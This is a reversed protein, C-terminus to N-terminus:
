GGEDRMRAQQPREARGRRRRERLWVVGLLVVVLLGLSLEALLGPIGGHALVTM